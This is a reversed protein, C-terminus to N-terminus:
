KAVRDTAVSMNRRLHNAVFLSYRIQSLLHEAVSEMINDSDTCIGSNRVSVLHLSIKQGVVVGTHQL